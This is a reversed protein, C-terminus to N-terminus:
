GADADEDPDAGADEAAPPSKHEDYGLRGCGMLALMAAAMLPLYLGRAQTQGLQNASNPRV